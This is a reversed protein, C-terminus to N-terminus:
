LNEDDAIKEACGPAHHAQGGNREKQARKTAIKTREGPGREARKKTRKEHTKQAREASKKAIRTGNKQSKGIRKREPGLAWPGSM